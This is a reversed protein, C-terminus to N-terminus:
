VSGEGGTIKGSWCELSKECFVGEGLIVWSGRAAVWEFKTGECEGGVEEGVGFAGAAVEV